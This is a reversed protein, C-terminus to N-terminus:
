TYRACTFGESLKCWVCSDPTEDAIILQSECNGCLREEGTKKPGDCPTITMLYLEICAFANSSLALM